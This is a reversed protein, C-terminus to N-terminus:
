PCIRVKSLSFILEIKQSLIWCLGSVIHTKGADSETGLVALKM